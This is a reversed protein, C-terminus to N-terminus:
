VRKVQDRGQGKGKIESKGRQRKVKSRAFAWAMQLLDKLADRHVRKLRVLVAPYGVYHDTVYYTDPEAAILEDRQSFDVVVVASDVEASKNIAPCALVRGRHKLAPVGYTTGEEVDPLALGLTRV